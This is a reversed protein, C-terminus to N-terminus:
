EGKEEAMVAVDAPCADDNHKKRFEEPDMDASENTMGCTMCYTKM